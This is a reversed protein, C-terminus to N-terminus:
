FGHGFGGDFGCNLVGKTGFVRKVVDFVMALDVELDPTKSLRLKVLGFVVVADM